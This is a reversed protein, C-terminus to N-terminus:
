SSATAFGLTTVSITSMTNGIGIKYHKFTVVEGLTAEDSINGM